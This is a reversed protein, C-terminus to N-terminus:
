EFRRVLTIHTLAFCVLRAWPPRLPRNQRAQEWQQGAPEWAKPMSGETGILFPQRCSSQYLCLYLCLATGLTGRIVGEPGGVGEFTEIMYYVILSCTSLVEVNSAQHAARVDHSEAKTTTRGRRKKLIYIGFSFTATFAFGFLATKISSHAM